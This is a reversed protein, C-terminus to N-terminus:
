KTIGPWNDTRFPNAPLGQQNYLNVDDPNDAWGYRVAIPNKVEDSYVMITNEDFLEAKAWHFKKDAGALTFGKLYGYKDKVKLGSGIESFTVYAKGDRFEVSQYMPGSNVVNLDYAIALADLALRWGVDQKNKPHIDDAEGIDIALAMGTNPLDLAMTQAERLEAWTSEGPEEQPQQFNALSVYLFPFNDQSWQNRWDKILSPFIRQYQKARSANAEGQYWIAGQIGYPIIPNIMGNFLLTPYSNPGIDASEVTAKSIKFKWDGSIDIRENGIAIFQDEPNGYIGGNGGTDNVRVVIMNRGPQIFKKDITYVREENYSDTKGVEIGNIFTIDEDDIKGLHLTMNDQTQNETLNIEKRYWAVGDIDMYGQAEWYKPTTITKWDGDNYNVASWAPKGDVTDVESNPLEGGLIQRIQALKQERYNELDLQQLEILRSKFDPDKSITEPSIWTEAVTGGWSSHILGVPVDLKDHIERGFFYAVASFGAVTEPSCEVWEGSEIDDQPFQAVKRPVSFLRINPYNAAAIETKANRSQAVSWQMNSQGSAIWVEGVMVNEFVIENEGKVTLTFPGGYDQVPLKAMWKGDEGAIVSVTIGNFTVNVKEGSDARGWVPIEIGQQLVMNSSFIKPLTVEAKAPISFVILFLVILGKVAKM